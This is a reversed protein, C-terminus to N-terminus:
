PRGSPARDAGTPTPGHCRQFGSLFKLILRDDVVTDEMLLVTGFAGKGIKELFKYRGEILDGPKYIGARIRDVLADAVASYKPVCATM